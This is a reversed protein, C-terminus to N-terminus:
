PMLFNDSVSATNKANGMYLTPTDPHYPSHEAIEDMAKKYMNDEYLVDFAEQAARKVIYYAGPPVIYDDHKLLFPRKADRLARVVTRLVYADNGHTLDAFLGRKKIKVPYHTGDLQTDKDYVPFGNKDEILPMDSVIVYASYGEKHRASAAYCRVPVGVLHARSAAKYGDPTTWRVISQRNGVILGGWDAITAINRVCEGYAKENSETVQSETVIDEGLHKNLIKALTKNTSGHLLPTHLEKVTDRDLDLGYGNGFETHSDYVTKYGGLNAAKMMEKSHFSLGSMMLGSNTFDYGFMFTTPKGNMGDCLAWFAKNLLIAQGFEKETTAALADACLAASYDAKKIRKVAQSVSCKGHLTTYIIHKLVDFDDETLEQPEASDIMLTEWLKGHPRIGELTAADYYVRFRHDYKASLYFKPFRAVHNVIKDAYIRFRNRKCIPDESLRNGKGDKKHNWDKKLSYGHMLMEQTCGSWLKYPVSAVEALFERQEATLRWHLVSTQTVVGPELHIGKYLDKTPEGGLQIYLFKKFKRDGNSMEVRQVEERVDFAGSDLLVNTVLNAAILKAREREFDHLVPDLHLAPLKFRLKGIFTQLLLEKNASAIKGIGKVVQKAKGPSGLYDDSLVYEHVIHTLHEMKDEIMRYSQLTKSYDIPM